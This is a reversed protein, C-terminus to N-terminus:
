PIKGCDLLKEVRATKEILKRSKCDIPFNVFNFDNM